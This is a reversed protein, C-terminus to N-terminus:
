NVEPPEFIRVMASEGVDPDSLVDEAIGYLIDHIAIKEQEDTVDPHNNGIIKM